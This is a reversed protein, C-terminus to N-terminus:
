RWWGGRNMRTVVWDSLTILDWGTPQDAQFLPVLKAFFEQNDNIIERYTVDIDYKSQFAELTPRHGGKARDIYLPWQAVALQHALPPLTSPAAAPAEASACAALFAAAAMGVGGRGAGRLLQWRSFSRDMWTTSRDTLKGGGSGALLTGRIRGCRRRFGPRATLSGALARVRVVGGGLCAADIRTAVRGSSGDSARRVAARRPSRLKPAGRPGSCRDGRAVACGAGARGGGGCRAAFAVQPFAGASAVVCPRGAALRGVEGGVAAVRERAAVAATGITGATGVQWATLGILVALAAGGGIRRAVGESLLSLLGTAAPLSLLASAPLLFRPALGSVLVLYEAALASGGLVACLIAGRMPSRTRVVAVGALAVTTGWWLVGAL